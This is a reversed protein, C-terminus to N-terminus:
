SRATFEAPSGAPADAFWVPKKILAGGV